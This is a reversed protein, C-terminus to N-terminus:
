IINEEKLKYGVISWFYHWMLALFLVAWQTSFLEIEYHETLMVFPIFGILSIMFRM